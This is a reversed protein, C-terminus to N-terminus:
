SRVSDTRNGAPPNAKIWLVFDYAAFSKAAKLGNREMAVGLTKHLEFLADGEGILGLLRRRSTNDMPVAREFSTIFSFTVEFPRMSNPQCAGTIESTM